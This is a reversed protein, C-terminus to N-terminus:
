GRRAGGEVVGELVARTELAARRWSFRAANEYGREVLRERLAEDRGLELLTDAISDVSTADFYIAGRGCVEPLSGCRSAAVPLGSSQAELAPLGFGEYLSPYVYALGHKLFLAKEKDSVPGAVVVDRRAPEGELYAETGEDLGHGALVLQQGGPRRKKMEVFGRVLRGINKHPLGSSVSLFFEGRVAYKRRVVGWDEETLGGPDAPPGEHISVVKDGSVKLAEMIRRRSYESVTIIRAASRVMFPMGVGFMLRRVWPVSGPIDRYNLDHVVPVTPVPPFVPSLYGPCFLVDAGSRRAAFGVAAQQYLFRAVRNGGHVASALCELGMEDRYRGHNLRNTLCLVDVGPLNRLEALLANVYTETGRNRGPVIFMLDVLVRM